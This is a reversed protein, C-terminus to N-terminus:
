YYFSVYVHIWTLFAPGTNTRIRFKDGDTTGSTFTFIPALLKTCKLGLINVDDENIIQFVNLTSGDFNIPNM